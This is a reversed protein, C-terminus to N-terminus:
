DGASPASTQDDPCNSGIVPVALTVGQLTLIHLNHGGNFGAAMTNRNIAAGSLSNAPTLRIWGSRGSPIISNLPPTTRFPTPSAISNRFQCSGGNFSFSYPTEVDNYVVGFVGGVSGVGAALDGGIRNLILLTDNGDERSPINDVALVRASTVGVNATTGDTTVGISTVPLAVAGLNAAHGTAYKVFADGILFPFNVPIGASNSAIAIIYGSVGPDLDSMQFSATQNETLCLFSDAVNCDTGRLFFLHVSISTFQNSNTINVRTDATAPNSADSTYANYVLVAGPAQDNPAFSVTQIPVGPDGALAAGSLVILALLSLAAHTITRTM